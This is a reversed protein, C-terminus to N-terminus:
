NPRAAAESSYGDTTTSPKATSLAHKHAASVVRRVFLWLDHGSGADIRRLVECKHEHKMAHYALFATVLRRAALHSPSRLLLKECTDAFLADCWEDDSYNRCSREEDLIASWLRECQLYHLLEDRHATCGFLCPLVQAEHMRTSTTWGNAWTKLITTAWAVSLGRLFDKLHQHDFDDLTADPDLVALRRNILEPISDPFLAVHLRESIFSQMKFKGCIILSAELNAERIIQPLVPGLTPHAPFGLAADHLTVAIPVTDFFPPSLSGRSMMSLTRSSNNMLMDYNDKWAITRLSARVLAAVASALASHLRVSGWAALSYFDARSFANFPVHLLRALVAAEHRLLEGPPVSLQAVYHLTALAHIDYLRTAVSPPAGTAAIAETRARWKSTPAQWLHHSTITGLFTGLYKSQAVVSIDIWDPLRLRLWDKIEHILSDQWPCLPVLASKKFKITLGAIVKALKFITAVKPLQALSVLAGGVDDACARIIGLDKKVILDDFLNLFPDFAVVFCFSALPCGQIVGSLILFLVVVSTGSRGIATVSDHIAKIFSILGIPLNSFKLVIVLWKHIVSPFAAGFDTFFLIPALADVGSWRSAFVRAHSDLDVINDLFNRKSIFGRQLRSAYLPVAHKLNIHVTGSITKVDTNKLGLPRTAAPERVIGSHDTSESGKPAFIMLCDNFDILMGM